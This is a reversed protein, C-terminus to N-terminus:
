PTESVMVGSGAIGDLGANIRSIREINDLTHLMMDSLRIRALYNGIVPFLDFGPEVTGRYSVRSDGGEPRIYWTSAGSEINSLDRVVTAHLYGNGTMRVDEVREIDFCFVLICDNVLTRVRVTNEDPASLLESEIISDNLRYIHTFDTLVHLVDEAPAHVVMEANIRYVGDNDTVTLELLDGAVVLPICVIGGTLFLLLLAERLRHGISRGTFLM